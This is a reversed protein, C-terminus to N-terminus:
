GEVLEADNDFWGPPPRLDPWDRKPYPRGIQAVRRARKASWKRRLDDCAKMWELHEPSGLQSKPFIRNRPM